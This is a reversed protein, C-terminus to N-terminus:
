KQRWEEGYQSWKQWDSAYAFVQDVSSQIVVSQEIRALNM